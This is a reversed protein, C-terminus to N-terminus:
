KGIWKKILAAEIGKDKVAQIGKNLIDLTEKDNLRVAFGYNEIEADTIVFAIKLLEKNGANQLAFDAAVPDDCLVADLRGNKLDEFAHGIADYSKAKNGIIKNAAFYGTTSIQAGLRKGALDKPNTMGANKLTVVAQQVTYYPTSFSMEKQRDETITVSSAIVDCRNAALEGFIGAWAVNRHIVKVGTEKAIADIYDVTYGVIEKDSNVFEMPPWTADHAVVLTKEAALSVYPSCVAMILAFVIKKLM